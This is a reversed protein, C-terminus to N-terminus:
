RKDLSNIMRDKIGFNENLTKFRTIGRFKNPIYLFKKEFVLAMCVGHFSDTIVYEAKQFAKLWDEVYINKNKKNPDGIKFLKLKEQKAKKINELKEKYGSKTDESELREFQDFVPCQGNVISDNAQHQPINIHKQGLQEGLTPQPAQHHVQKPDKQISEDREQKDTSRDGRDIRREKSDTRYKYAKEM